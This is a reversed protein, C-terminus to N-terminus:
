VQAPLYLAVESPTPLRCEWAGPSHFRHTCGGHVRRLGTVVTLCRSKM